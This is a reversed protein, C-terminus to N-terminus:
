YMEGLDRRVESVVKSGCTRVVSKKVMKGEVKKTKRVGHGTGAQSPSFASVKTRTKGM